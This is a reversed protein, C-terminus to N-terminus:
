HFKFVVPYVREKYLVSGSQSNLTIQYECSCGCVTLCRLSEQYYGVSVHSEFDSSPENEHHSEELDRPISVLFLLLLLKCSHSIRGMQDM